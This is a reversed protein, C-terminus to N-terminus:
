AVMSVNPRAPHHKQFPNLSAAHVDSIGSEDCRVRDQEKAPVGHDGELDYAGETHMMAGRYVSQDCQVRDQEKAPVGHDGELDYAGETHM